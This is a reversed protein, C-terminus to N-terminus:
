ALSFESMVVLKSAENRLSRFQNYHRLETQSITHQPNQTMCYSPWLTITTNTKPVKIIFIGFGKAPYKRGNIIQVNCKVPIIYSFM